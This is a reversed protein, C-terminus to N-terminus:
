GSRVASALNEFNNVMVPSNMFGTVSGFYTPSRRDLYTLSVPTLFSASTRKSLFGLITLYDCLMRIGRESAQCRRALSEVSSNGEAVATFLELEIAAKLAFSRQYARATEFILMPNPQSAPPQTTMWEGRKPAHKRCAPM